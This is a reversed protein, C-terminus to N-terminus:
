RYISPYLSAFDLCAVPSKYLGATNSEIPHMLFPSEVLQGVEQRGGM